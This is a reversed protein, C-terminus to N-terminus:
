KPSFGQREFYSRVEGEPYFHKNNAEITPIDSANLLRHTKSSSLQYERAIQKRGICKVGNAEISVDIIQTTEM